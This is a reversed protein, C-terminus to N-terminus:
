TDQGEDSARPRRTHLAGNVPLADLETNFSGDKNVWASGVKLWFPKKGEGRDVVTFVDLREGPSYEIASDSM